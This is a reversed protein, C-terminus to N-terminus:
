VHRMAVDEPIDAWQMLVIDGSKLVARKHSLLYMIEGYSVNEADIAARISKLVESVKERKM